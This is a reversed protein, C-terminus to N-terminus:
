FSSIHDPQSHSKYKVADKLINAKIGIFFDYVRYRGIPVWNFNINFSRQDRSFGIMTHAIEDTVVDYDASANINWYPTLKINGNLGVSFTKRAELSTGKYYSYQASVNLSWPQSFRAYYDNDFYYNENRVKGKINYKKGLDEKEGFITESLPASLQINYNSISFHGFEETRTGNNAGPSFDIKYPDLSMSMNARIKNDLFSTQASVSFMSWKHEEAAFNHSGSLSVSEFIKIKRVGLSDKKSRVKMELNNSISFGISENLGSSPSGYVGGEFISYPVAVNNRDYYESYYGWTPKSFDPSYSFSISPTIMHRIAQVSSKSGFKLMGYLVTQLSASTTFTSFGAINEHYNNEVENTIPNYVRELTKTAIVNNINGGLSFTFHKLIPTNTSLSISNQAGTKMNEYMIKTFLEEETTSVTNMFSFNTNVSVNELLGMRIGTKPKLLYFQNVNITLQPLRMDVRGTSFSQSYSGTGNISLPLNLFRKTFSISSSQQTNFTNGDYIYGNNMTNDYFKTSVIDVSASFNFYPNAKPDQSHRWSIRYSNSKSYDSLGKIGSVRSGFDAIFSGTFKYRKTYGVEPRFSWSGKTYIDSYVKLDMYDGVPLYYGLGNLFFGVDPREGFSPILIGASRDDSIPLIAFPLVLPTPTNEIYMQVPGTIVRTGGKSKIMKIKPALMHYDATSDKKNIFYEDTTYLGKRLFYISDNIKKTKDAVIGGESEETYTNYATAINTRYNYNLSETEYKKGGQTTVVPIITKGKEDLKGRAFIMNKDWDIQIYDADIQTDQYVVTANENLTTIKTQVNNKTYSAKTKVVDAIKERGTLISDSSVHVGEILMSDVGSGKEAVVNAVNQALFSNFILFILIQLTNKFSNINL